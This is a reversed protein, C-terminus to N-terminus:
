KVQRVRVRVRSPYGYTLVPYSEMSIYDGRSVQQDGDLDVHVRVNLHARPEFRPVELRFALKATLGKSCSVNQITQEALVSAPADARSVDEVQVFATAGSFSPTDEPFLIEGSVTLGQRPSDDASSNLM